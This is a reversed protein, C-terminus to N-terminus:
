EASLKKPKKDAGGAKQRAAAESGHGEGPVGVPQRKPHRDSGSDGPHEDGQHELPRSEGQASKEGAGIQYTVDQAVSSDRRWARNPNQGTTDGASNQGGNDHIPGDYPEGAQYPRSLKVEGKWDPQQGTKRTNAFLVGTGEKRDYDKPM